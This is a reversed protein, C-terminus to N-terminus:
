RRDDKGIRYKKTLEHLTPRSVGLQIAAQSINGQCRRLVATVHKREAEDRIERLSVTPRASEPTDMELDRTTLVQGETMIVARKVRHELERVNGPWTANRLAELAEVSVGNVEKQYQWAFQHLFANTLLVVDDDRERLPPLVITVVSLRYFLDERFRKEALELKLDRNTAAIVRVDLPIMERGGVREIQHEQLFRLLKVQLAIPLDGIEDLFLTGGDAYECKGKRRADANTFAGKEHGFLESELLTEPIAGCNITIFPGQRRNSSRHIAKAVLEKGTGSEGMVLVSADTGAVKRIAAFVRQMPPSEGMIEEFSQQIIRTRLATNERELSSLLLARKLVVRVENLDAPKAFFDFAGQEIAKLASATEQNGTIVVVKTQHDVALIEGLTKLGEEANRPHPPLGLDLAVLGPRQQTMQELASHRDEALLVDYDDNLAWRMQNRIPEEDDVILLKPKTM